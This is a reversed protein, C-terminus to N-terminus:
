YRGTRQIQNVDAIKLENGGINRVVVDTSFLRKLRGFLSTDAM